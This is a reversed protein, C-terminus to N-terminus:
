MLPRVLLFCCWFKELSVLHTSIDPHTFLDTINSNKVKESSLCYKECWSGDSLLISEFISCVILASIQIFKPSLPFNYIEYAWWANNNTIFKKPYAGARTVGFPRFVRNFDGCEFSKFFYLDHLLQVFGPYPTLRDFVLFVHSRLPAYRM